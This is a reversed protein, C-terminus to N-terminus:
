LLSLTATKVAARKGKNWPSKGRKAESIKRCTEASRKRGRHWAATKAVHEPSHKRGRHAVSLKACHEPSLTKGKNWPMRGRRSASMKAKAEATHKRGKAKASLKAKTESSLKGGRGGGRINYGHPAQTNFAKIYATEIKDLWEQTQIGQVIKVATFNNWGYKAIANEIVTARRPRRYNQYNESNRYSRMRKDYDWTQGVYQKGTVKCTLLYVVGNVVDSM